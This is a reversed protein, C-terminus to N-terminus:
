PQAANMLRFLDGPQSYYDSDDDRHNSHDAAGNIELAPEKFEPQEQCAGYSNPEYGPTSGYNGDTRMQGDDQVM